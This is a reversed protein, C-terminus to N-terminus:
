WELRDGEELGHLEAFGANVELVYIAPVESTVQDESMPKTNSRIKVIEKDYNIFIIDLPIYTNKMWFSQPEENRMLFLMGQNAEMERRWMLGQRISAADGAFEIDLETIPEPSDGRYIALDGDDIFAPPTAPESLEAPQNAVPAAPEESPPPPPPPSGGAGPISTLIFSILALGMLGIILIQSWNIKRKPRYPKNSNAPTPTAVTSTIKHRLYLFRAVPLGKM